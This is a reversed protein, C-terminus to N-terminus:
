IYIDLYNLMFLEFDKVNNFRRVILWGNAESNKAKTLPIRFGIAM